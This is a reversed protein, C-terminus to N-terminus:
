DKNNKKLILYFIKRREEKFLIEFLKVLIGLIFLLYFSLIRILFNKEEIFIKIKKNNKLKNKSL